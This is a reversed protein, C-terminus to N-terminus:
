RWRDAYLLKENLEFAIPIWSNSLARPSSTDSGSSPVLRPNDFYQADPVSM